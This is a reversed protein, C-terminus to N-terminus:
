MVLPAVHAHHRGGPHNSLGHDRKNQGICKELLEAAIRHGLELSVVARIHLGERLLLSVETFTIDIASAMRRKTPSPEDTAMPRESSGTIGNAAPWSSIRCCRRSRSSMPGM